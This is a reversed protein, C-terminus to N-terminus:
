SKKHWPIVDTGEKLVYVDVQKAGWACADDYNTATIGMFLDVVVEELYGTDAAIAYGYVHKGNQSVIYLESGFPIIDPNVAVTGVELKRGTYTGAGEPATYAVGKGSVIYEYDKPLGNVLVLDPSDKKSIPTALARGYTIVEAVPERTIEAAVVTESVLEGDIYKERTTIRKIGNQGPTVETTGIPLLNSYEEVTEYPLVEVTVRDVYEVRTIDIVDGDVVVHNQPLNIIDDSGLEIGARAILQEVTENSTKLTITEGDAHVNAIYARTIVIPTGEPCTEHLAPVTIDYPDLQIEARELITKVTDGYAATVVKSTGDYAVTVDYARLISVTCTDNETIGSFVVQDLPHLRYGYEKLIDDATDYMTYVERVDGGDVIVAKTRSYLLGTLMFIVMVSSLLVLVTPITKAKLSNKKASISHRVNVFFKSIDSVKM